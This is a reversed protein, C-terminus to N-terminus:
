APAFLVDARSRRVLQPLARQEWLTGNGPATLTTFSTPVIAPEKPACLIFEHDTAARSHGWARLLEILYRGVGTPRDLIERADIAIRMRDARAEDASPM